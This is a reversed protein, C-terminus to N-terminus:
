RSSHWEVSSLEGAYPWEEDRAVLGKRVPNARIYDWAAEYDEDRRM